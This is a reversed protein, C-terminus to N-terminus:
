HIIKNEHLFDLCMLLQVSFRKVLGLSVGSFNNKKLFEYLNISLLEFVICLHNRFIFSEEMIVGNHMEDPGADNLFKLLKIEILGQKFFRKKSKIIKLCVFKNEKNDYCKIAQGFSGKGLYGAIQYRYALHDNIIIKYDGNEDDYGYNPSKLISGQLKESNQGLYYITKYDLIEGSEYDNMERMFHKLTQAASMPFKPRHSANSNPQQPNSLFSERSMVLSKRKDNKSSQLNKLFNNFNTTNRTPAVSNKKGKSFKSLNSINNNHPIKPSEPKVLVRQQTRAELFKKFKPNININRNFMELKNKIDKKPKSKSERHSVESLNM